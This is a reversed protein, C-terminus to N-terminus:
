IFLWVTLPVTPKFLKQWEMARAFMRDSLEKDKIRVADQLSYLVQVADQESKLWDQFRSWQRLLSEHSIDLATDATLWPQAHSPAPLLFNRDNAQFAAIVLEVQQVTTAAVDLVEQVRPRRRTIQGEASVDSLLLFLKQAVTKQHEDLTAFAEDADASLANEIRQARDYDEFTLAASKANKWTRM